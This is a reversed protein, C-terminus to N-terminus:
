RRRSTPGQSPSLVSAITHVVGNACMIDMHEAAAGNVRIDGKPWKGFTVILSTGDLATLVRGNYMAELPVRMPVVHCALLAAVQPAGALEEDSAGGFAAALAADTPAFVTFDSGPTDLREAIGPAAMRMLRAFRAIPRESDCTPLLLDQYAATPDVDVFAAQLGRLGRPFWAKRIRFPLDGVVTLVVSGDPQVIINTVMVLQGETGPHAEDRMPSHVLGITGGAYRDGGGCRMRLGFNVYKEETLTIKVEERYGPRPRDRGCFVFLPLAHAPWSDEGGLHMVGDTWVCPPVPEVSAGMTRVKVSKIAPVHQAPRGHPTLRPCGEESWLRGTHAVSPPRYDHQSHSTLSGASTSRCSSLPTPGRNSGGCRSGAVSGAGSSPPRSGRGVLSGASGSHGLIHAGTRQLRGGGSELGLRGGPTPAWQRGAGGDYPADYGGGQHGDDGGGYHGGPADYGYQGGPGDYGCRGDHGYHPDPGRVACGRGGGGEM